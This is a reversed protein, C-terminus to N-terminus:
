DDDDEDEHEEGDDHDRREGDHGGEGRPPRTGPQQGVGPERMVSTIIRGAIVDAHFKVPQGSADVFWVEVRTASEQVAEATVGVVTDVSVVTLSTRTQELTVIGFGQVDYASRTAPPVTTTAEQAVVQQGSDAVVTDAAAPATTAAASEGVLRATGAPAQDATVTADLVSTNITYAVGGAALVTGM